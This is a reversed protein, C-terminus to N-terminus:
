IREQPELAYHLQCDWRYAYLHAQYIKFELRVYKGTLEALNRNKWVPKAALEDGTLPKCDDFSFGEYPQGAKDCVQVHVRGLPAKYNITLDGDKPILGRTRVWGDGGASELYAFGDKRMQYTRLAGDGENRAFFERQMDFEGHELRYASSYIRIDDDPGVVLGSGYHGAWGFEPMEARPLIPTRPGRLWNLGDYSYVLSTDVWGCMKVIGELNGPVLPETNPIFNDWLLGVFLDEYWFVELGYFQFLPPDQSDPQIIVRRPTFTHLDQSEIVAVRRDLNGPRCYVLYRQGIPDYVINNRTDSDMKAIWRRDWHPTWAIGDPSTYIFGADAAAVYRESPSGAHENIYCANFGEIKIKNSGERYPFKLSNPYEPFREDTAGGHPCNHFEYGDDSEAYYMGKFVQPELWDGSSDQRREKGRYASYWCRYKKEPPDYLVTFHGNCDTWPGNDATRAQPWRRVIDHTAEIMWDDLFLFLKM